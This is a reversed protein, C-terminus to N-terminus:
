IMMLAESYARTHGVVEKAVGNSCCHMPSTHFPHDVFPICFKQIDCEMVLM